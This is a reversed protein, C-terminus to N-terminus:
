PATLNVDVQLERRQQSALPTYNVSTAGPIAEYDNSGETRQLKWQYSLSGCAGECVTAAELTQGVQPRGTLAGGGSVNITVTKPASPDIISGPPTTGGGGVGPATATTVSANVGTVNNATKPTVTYTLVQGVDGSTLVYQEDTDGSTGGGTWLMTSANNAVDNSADGDNDAFDFSGTLTQGVQLTGTIDLNDVTPVASPDVISGPPTTGGGGVGPATATTVSANVGIVNGTTKPTVTFTLVQGVDATTLVYQEDTDGSTGGGTWLMTSANNAVDNNADGDNDAFDFSGTLTQNVQLVGTIDLNDV